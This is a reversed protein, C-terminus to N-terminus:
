RLVEEMVPAKGVHEGDGKQAAAFAIKEDLSAEKSSYVPANCLIALLETNSIGSELSAGMPDSMRLRKNIEAFIAKRDVLDPGDQALGGQDMGKGNFAREDEYFRVIEGRGNLMMSCEAAIRSMRLYDDGNSGLTKGTAFDLRQFNNKQDRYLLAIDMYIGESGGWHVSCEARIYDPLAEDFGKEKWTWPNMTFYEEPMLDMKDLHERLQTFAYYPSIMGAHRVMGKKESPVWKDVEITQLERM